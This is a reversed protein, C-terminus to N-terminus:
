LQEIAACGFCALRYTSSLICHIRESYIGVLTKFLFSVTFKKIQGNTAYNSFHYPFSAFVLHVFFETFSHTNTHVLSDPRWM